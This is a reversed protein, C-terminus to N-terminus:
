TLIRQATLNLNTNSSSTTAFLTVNGSVGDINSSLEVIDASVNSCVSAYITIYSDAGDHVLLTEVSQYGNDGTASIVYKATRYTSPDFEDIVTNTSVTVNSRSTGYSISKVEGTTTVSTLTGVSTINPQAATTVTGATSALPVTGSVNAGAVANATTAFAVAGSVNAGAVSNAVTSFGVAGTVNAGVVNSLRGADGGITGTAVTINGTVTLNSTTKDFTFNASGGFSESDNFQVNTNAGGPDSLDWPNGNAYLLNDTKVNGADVNGTVTLATLTGLSTINPQAATTITSATGTVSGVIGATVTLGSLTGVSTINPQAATTLTGAVTTFSGATGSVNGAGVNGTVDLSGLTGVSTLSSGTVGSAISTGTLVEANATIAVNSANTLQGKSNVTFTANHTGNGYAQATVATDTISFETGTLTLGAGATFSGAGSFQVFTIDDTGVTTVPDTNVWGTDNYITGTSVFTFDGGAIETPTDFDTARTLVTSSTYVYIGNNPLNGGTENKILIRDSVSLTIGDIVTISGGSITLTAGVGATGNDYTVTGGSMTAVTGTSAVRCPAHVALGQAVDDVYQKTAADTSATPTALDTIRKSSVAVAGTGTPVLTIPQNTGIATISIGSTKGIIRDTVLNASTDVNGTVALSSLTGVSTVNPQAATTLSGAVTTFDGLSGSVNGTTVNGTVALSTLTGTSTINPQAATTLTGAVTSFSGLSGSVNGTTVNGTVALVGTADNFTFGADGGFEGDNNYQVFTNTGGPNGGLDWATGNAYLLNDTKVNGAAVNGTVTLATLTGLSTINPQAATTVTGATSALPVTGSVNAGPLNTLNAGSGAFTTASALTGLAANNVTLNGTAADITATGVTLGNKVVFNKTAM